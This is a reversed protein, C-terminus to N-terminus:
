WLRQAEALRCRVRDRVERLCILFFVTRQQYEVVNDGGHRNDLCCCRRAM